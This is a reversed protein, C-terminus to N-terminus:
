SGRAGVYARVQAFQFALPKPGYHTALRALADRVVRIIDNKPTDSHLLALLPPNLFAPHPRAQQTRIERSM